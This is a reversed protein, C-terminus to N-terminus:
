VLPPPRECVTRTAAPVAPRGPPCVVSARVQTGTAAAFAPAAGRGLLTPTTDIAPLAVCASVRQQQVSRSKM